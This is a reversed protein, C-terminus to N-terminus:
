RRIPDVTYVGDDSVRDSWSTGSWFRMQHRRTPDAMWRAPNPADDITDPEAASESGLPEVIWLRREVRPAAVEGGPEGGIM